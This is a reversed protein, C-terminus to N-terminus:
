EFSKPQFRLGLGSYVSILAPVVPMPPM